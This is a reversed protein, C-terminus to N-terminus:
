PLVLRQNATIGTRDIAAGGHPLVVRVDVRERDAIGLHAVAEQGSSYGYGTAIEGRGVLAAADGLRGAEYVEVRAGVDMANAGPAPRVVVELYNGSRSVNRYLLSDRSPEWEVGFV